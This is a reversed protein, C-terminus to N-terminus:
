RYAIYPFAMGKRFVSQDAPLELFGDADTLNAFDGSGHGEIPQALLRGDTDQRIKVQLFFQLNKPFKFDTDLQAYMTPEKEAGLSTYLWPKFYRHLCLFSSVPNGPLAFVLTDNSSRGFWLPKGPRQRVRHFLEEVGLADLAAPVYDFKGRSVGGSLLVVDYDELCHELAEHIESEDDRLHLKDSHIQWQALAAQLMYSNSRRIQHPLPKQEIPVLEDGTSIIVANPLASVEVKTKGVSAIIAIEAPTLVKGPRIISAGAQRDAGQAHVFQSPQVEDTKLMARGNQIQLDEYMIVTDAGAPLPAGTMIELCATRNQLQKQPSGAAQVGEIAFTRHGQEFAEFALAVGDREARHFPPFARDAVINERLVRGTAKELPVKEAPFTTPNDLIITLAEQVSIM